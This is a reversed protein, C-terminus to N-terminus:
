GVQEQIPAITDGDSHRGSYRRVVEVLYRSRQPQVNSPDQLLSHCISTHRDNWNIFVHLVDLPRIEWSTRTYMAQIPYLVHVGGALSPEVDSGFAINLVIGLSLSDEDMLDGILDLLRIHKDM